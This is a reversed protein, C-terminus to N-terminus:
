AMLPDCPADTERNPHGHHGGTALTHARLAYGTVADLTALHDTNVLATSQYGAWIAYM